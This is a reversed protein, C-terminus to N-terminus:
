HGSLRFGANDDLLAAGVAPLNYASIVGFILFLTM